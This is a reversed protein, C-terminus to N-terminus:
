PRMEWLRIIGEPIDPMSIYLDQSIKTVNLSLNKPRPAKLNAEAISGSQILSEDFGFAKAVENGFYYKSCSQSGAVHYIGYLGQHYMKILIEALKGVYIPSFIVDTFMKIAKEKELNAVVWEVLSHRNLPSWGYFVTRAIIADPLLRLVINEGELKTTAYTNLPNVLDDERYMGKDGDFVSDTSIYILRAGINKSALVINETGGVNTMWAEDVHEECYDINVLAAAHIVVKPRIEQFITVVQQKNKIDLPLSFYNKSKRPQSHYTAYVDFDSASLKAISSGLLGSGGTILLREKM